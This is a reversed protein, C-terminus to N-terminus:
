AFHSRHRVDDSFDADLAFVGVANFDARYVAEVLALIHEHDMGIFADIAPHALRFARDVGDLGVGLRRKVTPEIEIAFIRFLPRVDRGLLCCGRVGVGKDALWFLEGFIEAGVWALPILPM